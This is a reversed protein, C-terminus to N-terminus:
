FSERKAAAKAAEKHTSHPALVTAILNLRDPKPGKVEAATRNPIEAPNRQPQALTEPWLKRGARPCNRGNSIM